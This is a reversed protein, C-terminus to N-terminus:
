GDDRNAIDIDTDIDADLLYSEFALMLHADLHGPMERNMIALAQEAAIPPKYVRRDTMASFVDVISAMRALDNIASGTLGHPYGSGDLREHHQEAVSVVASPIDSITQLRGVAATVHGRMIEWEAETLHSTKNLVEHPISLKGTDHLLGCAAAVELDHGRLGLDHCFLTLLTAVKLCHIYSYNDYDRLASLITRYGGNSVAEILSACADAVDAQTVTEGQDLAGSILNFLDVTKRLATKQPVPLAEWRLEVRATLLSSVAEILASRRYPKTLISNAPCRSLIGALDCRDARLTLIIPLDRLADDARLREILDYGGRPPALEDILVLAPRRQRCGAWARDTDAYEAIPHLFFLARAVQRRHTDNADVIVIPARDSGRM